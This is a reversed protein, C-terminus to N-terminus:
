CSQTCRYEAAPRIPTNATRIASQTQIYRSVNNTRNSRNPPMYAEQINIINTGCVWSGNQGSECSWGTDQSFTDKASGILVVFAFLMLILKAHKEHMAKGRTCYFFLM